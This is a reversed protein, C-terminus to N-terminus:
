LQQRTRKWLKSLRLNLIILWTDLNVQWVSILHLFPIRYINLTEIPKSSNDLLCLAETLTHCRIAVYILTSTIYKLGDGFKNLTRLRTKRRLCTFWYVNYHSLAFYKVGLLASSLDTFKVYDGHQMKRFDYWVIWYAICTHMNRDCFRVFAFAVFVVTMLQLAM